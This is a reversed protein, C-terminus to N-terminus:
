NQKNELDIKIRRFAEVQKQIDCIVAEVCSAEEFKKSHVLKLVKMTLNIARDEIFRLWVRWEDTKFLHVIDEYEQYDSQKSM